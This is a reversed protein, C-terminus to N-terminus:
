RRSTSGSRARSMARRGSTSRITTSSTSTRRPTALRRDRALDEVVELKDFSVYYYDPRANTVLRDYSIVPVRARAAMEVIVSASSGDHPALILAKVGQSPLNECQSLQRGADNDTVQVRLDIGLERAAEEM